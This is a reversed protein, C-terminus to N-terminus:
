RADAVWIHPSTSSFRILSFTHQQSEDPIYIGRYRFQGIAAGTYVPNSTSPTEFQHNSVTGNFQSDLIRVSASAHAIIGGRFIHYGSAPTGRSSLAVTSRVNQLEVADMCGNVQSCPSNDSALFSLKGILGSTVFTSGEVIGGIQINRLSLARTDVKYAAGAFAGVYKISNIDGSTPMRVQATAVVGDIESSYIMGIVGGVHSESVLPKNAKVVVNIQLDKLISRGLFQALGGVNVGEVTGTVVLQTITSESITGAFLGSTGNGPSSTDVAVSNLVQVQSVTSLIISEAFIAARESGQTFADQIKLNRIVAGQIRGFLGTVECVDGPIYSWNKITKGNGNFTGWFSPLPQVNQEAFDLDNCLVFKGHRNYV